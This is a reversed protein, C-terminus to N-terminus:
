NLLGSILFEVRRNTSRGEPSDNPAIPEAEGRGEVALRGEDIGRRYLEGAVATARAFSLERNLEEGGRDDTHGVLTLTTRPQSQLLQAALEVLPAYEDAVVANGTPFLVTDAVGLAIPLTEDFFASDSIELNNVVRDSGLANQAAEQLRLMAQEDPVTGELYMIGDSIILRQTPDSVMALQLVEKPEDPSPTAFAFFWLAATGLLAASSGVLISKASGSRRRETAPPNPASSAAQQSPVLPAIPRGGGLHPVVTHDTSIRECVWGNNM